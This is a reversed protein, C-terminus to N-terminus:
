IHLAVPRGPINELLAECALGQHRDPQRALGAVTWTVVRKKGNARETGEVSGLGEGRIEVLHGAARSRAQDNIARGDIAFTSSHCPHCSSLAEPAIFPGRFLRCASLTQLAEVPHEGTRRLRCWRVLSKTWADLHDACVSFKRPATRPFPRWRHRDTFVGRQRGSKPPLPDFWVFLGRRRPRRIIGNEILAHRRSEDSVVPASGAPIMCMSMPTRHFALQCSAVAKSINKVDAVASQDVQGFPGRSPDIQSEVQRSGEIGLKVM